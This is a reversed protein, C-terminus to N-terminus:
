GTYWRAFLGDIEMIVEGAADIARVDWLTGETRESTLRGEVRLHEGVRVKRGLQLRAVSAPLAQRSDRESRISPFLHAIQLLAELLYPAYQYRCPVSMAFDRGEAYETEGAILSPATGEFHRMVRYRGTLDTHREYRRQGERLDVPPTDLDQATVWAPGAARPESAVRGALVSCLFASPSGAELNGDVCPAVGVRCLAGELSPVRRCEIRVPLEGGDPCELMQRFEIDRVELADLHPFLIRVAELAQEVLAVASVIPGRLQKLPKHDALWLDRDASFTRAAVLEERGADVRLVSDILPLDNPEYRTLVGRLRADVVPLEALLATACAPLARAVLADSHASPQLLLEECLFAGAERVDIYAGSLGRLALLERLEPTDAMGAGEVPPLWLTRGRLGPVSATRHRILAAMARNAACYNAQGVNGTVAALSSLGCVFRLGHPQAAQWLRLLADVKVANVAAFDEPSQLELFSDRLVGAGHVIGDIRGFRQALDDVVRQAAVTQTLDATVYEAEVGAARLDALTRRIEQQRTAASADADGVSSSTSGPRAHGTEAPAELSTRGVLVLRPRFPALARALHGTVGRAGGSMLIVDGPAIDLQRGELPSLAEPRLATTSLGERSCTLAVLRLHPDLVAPLAAGLDGGDELLLHRFLVSGYEAASTLLLGRLGESVAARTSSADGMEDVVLCLEREDSHLFRKLAVFAATLVPTVLSGDEPAIDLGQTTLVLGALSGVTGLRDDVVRSIDAASMEALTGLPLVVDHLRLKMRKAFAMMAAPPTAVQGWGVVGVRSGKPLRLPAARRTDVAQQEFVLRSLPPRATPTEGPGPQENPTVVRTALLSAVRGGDREVIQAVRAAMDHVTRVDLFDELRITIGFRKEAAFVILPLRSSRISLDDRLDMDPEIEQREYGTAEVIIQIVDELLPSEARASREAAVPSMPATPPPAGQSEFSSRTEEPTLVIRVPQPAERVLGLAYLRALAARCSCAEGSEPLTTPMAIPHDLTDAILSALTDKPGLELFAGIRLDRSLAEIGQRWLVPAELQGVILARIAAPDDPFLQATTNAMVPIRPARVEMAALHPELKARTPQMIPSHFAMSVRLRRNWCGESDLEAQLAAIAPIPGGVVLQRPSNDNTIVLAPYRVLRREAQDLPLGVALMAGPDAESAAVTDMARARQDVLRFADEPALVGAVALAALEGLSHGALADPRLGLELFVQALGYELVFLAPQQWRTNRLAEDDAAVLLARLDFDAVGALRDVTQRFSPFAECLERGMGAYQAGQGPFVFALRPAPLDARAMVLGDRAALPRRESFRQWEPARLAQMARSRETQEPSEIAGRFSGAASEIDLLLVGALSHTQPDAPLEIPSEPAGPSVLVVGREGGNEEVQVVYNAGGFGFANTQFRRPHRAPAPWPRSEGPIELRTRGLELAPDPRACNLTMPFTGHELAAVGRVLSMLGAAGLTHGIQSKFSALVTRRDSPFFARLARVEEVDGQVTGTAHCEVLDITRPAYGADGLAARIAIEQTEARSEIMGQSNNSAGIGTVFALIRAGRHRAVSERELVLMAGGEGLVMGDREADFPRSLEAAPRGNQLAGALAGVASFELYHAPQLPEEGGGVLAVDLAGDRILRVANHLAVLGTACAASVSYSPGQFGYRNCVFGGATCNLRGLLTTDDVSLRGDRICREVTERQEPTLQLTQAISRALSPAAIALTLDALTSAAEGSNQSILVGIRERPVSSELLAAQGVVRHALWLTLRTSRAMTRFDQPPIGLERRDVALDLFAGARCYTKGPAQPRADYYDAHNWRSSPVDVIGSRASASAAWIEAPDRGLANAVAMATIAVRERRQAPVRRSPTHIAPGASEVPDSALAAVSMLEEHFAALSRVGDICGAVAGSMFQGERRCASEDLAAGGAPSRGHAAILLTGAAQEELENRLQQEGAAASGLHSELQALALTKPSRLSRVRLGIAEGMVLTGGPSAAVIAEQYLPSLAGSAVIERTALYATGAQVADAGLLVARAASERDFIGGALILEAGDFLAPERRKLALVSQALTTLSHPGVHGGAENGELIVRRVGAQLALRLLGEDSAVYLVGIGLASLRQAFTPDGAAIVVLPPRTQEIWALQEDRRPNEALVIVNVAYPLGGMQRALQGLDRELEARSRMGLAIAPLGGAEAVARAFPPQDTIWSMAGQVVRSRSGWSPRQETAAFAQLHRGAAGREAAVAAVFAAFAEHTSGGFRAAFAASFAAEPGFAVLRERGLCAELPAPAAGRVQDRLYTRAAHPSEALARARLEGNLQRVATSNGKDFFRCPLGLEQGVVRTCDPRLTSLTARREADLGIDDTLWHVSEFVIADAGTTLYAAAAEPTAIGGWIALQAHAGTRRAARRAVSLLVHASEPSVLGSAEHGKLAIAPMRGILPEIMLPDTLVPVCRMHESLAVMRELLAQREQGDATPPCELWVRVSSSSGALRADGDLQDLAVLAAAPHVGALTGPLEDTPVQRLDVIVGWPLSPGVEAAHRAGRPWLFSLAPLTPNTDPTETSAVTM